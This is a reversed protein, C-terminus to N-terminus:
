CGMVVPRDINAINIRKLLQGLEGDASVLVNTADAGGPANADVEGPEVDLQPLHGLRRCEQQVCQLGELYHAILPNVLSGIM